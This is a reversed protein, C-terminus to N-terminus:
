YEKKKKIILKFNSSLCKGLILNDFKIILKCTLSMCSVTCISHTCRCISFICNRELVYMGVTSMYKKYQLGLFSYKSFLIHNSLVLYVVHKCIFFIYYIRQSICLISIYCIGVPSRTLYNFPLNKLYKDYQFSM